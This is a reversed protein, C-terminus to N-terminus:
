EAGRNEPLNGPELMKKYLFWKGSSKVLKFRRMLTDFTPPLEGRVLLFDVKGYNNLIHTTDRVLEDYVPLVDETIRRRIVGFRYKTICSAATGEERIIFYNPFHFYMPHGRYLNDAMLGALIKDPPVAPLIEESFGRNERDFATFYDYFLGFSIRIFM